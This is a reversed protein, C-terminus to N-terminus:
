LIHKQYDNDGCTIKGISTKRLGIGESSVCIGARLVASGAAPAGGRAAGDAGAVGANGAVTHASM